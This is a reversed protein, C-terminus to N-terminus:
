RFRRSQAKPSCEESAQKALLEEVVEMHGREAALSLRSLCRSSPSPSASLREMSLSSLSSLALPPTKGSSSAAEEISARAQYRGTGRSSLKKQKTM